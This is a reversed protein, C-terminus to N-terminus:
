LCAGDVLIDEEPPTVPTTNLIEGLSSIAISIHQSQQLLELKPGSPTMRLREIHSHPFTRVFDLGGAATLKVLVAQDEVFGTGDFWKEEPGPDLDVHGKLYGVLYLADDPGLASDRLLFEGPGGFSLLQQVAGEDDVVMWLLSFPIYDANTQVCRGLLQRDLGGYRVQGRGAGLFLAGGAARPYITQFRGCGDLPRHQPSVTWRPVGERGVAMISASGEEFRMGTKHDDPFTALLFGDRAYAIAGAAGSYVVAENGSADVLAVIPKGNSNRQIVLDRGTPSVAAVSVEAGLWRTTNATIWVVFHVNNAMHVAETPDIDIPSAASAYGSVVMGDPTCRVHAGQITPFM